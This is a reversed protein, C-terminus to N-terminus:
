KNLFDELDEVTWDSLQQEDAGLVFAYNARICTMAALDGAVKPDAILVAHRAGRGDRFLKIICHNANVESGEFIELLPPIEGPFRRFAAFDVVGDNIINDWVIFGVGDLAGEEALRSVLRERLFSHQEEIFIKLEEDKVFFFLEMNEEFNPKDITQSLGLSSTVFLLTLAMFFKAIMKNDEDAM